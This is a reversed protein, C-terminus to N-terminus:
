NIKHRHSMNLDKLSRSGLFEESTDTNMLCHLCHFYYHILSLQLARDHAGKSQDTIRM